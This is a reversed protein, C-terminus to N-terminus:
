LLRIKKNKENKPNTHLISYSDSYSHSLSCFICNSIELLSNAVTEAIGTKVIATSLVVTTGLVLLLNWEVYQIVKQMRCCKFILMAGAALMTTAMLPLVHFWSLLFMIMVIVSAIITRRGLQPVFHSDFFTLSGKTLM